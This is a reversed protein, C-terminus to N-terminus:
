CFRCFQSVYGWQPEVVHYFRATILRNSKLISPASSPLSAAKDTNSWMVSASLIISKSSVAGFLSLLTIKKIKKKM